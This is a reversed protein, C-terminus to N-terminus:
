PWRGDDRERLALYVVGMGGDGLEREIRYGPFAPDAWARSPRPWRTTLSPEGLIETVEDDEVAFALVTEGAQITDGDRLDAAHVRKGNVRVGNTSAMDM